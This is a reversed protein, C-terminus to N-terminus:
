LCVDVYVDDITEQEIGIYRLTERQSAHNLIRMLTPLDAAGSKYAHYAFTKRLTHTGVVIGRRDLGARSAAAKLIRYAQVRSIPRPRGNPGSRRSPLLPQDAPADAPILEKAARKVAANIKFRKAKGTKGERLTIHSRGRVDGVTLRLIDSIRLATNIGVIFLLLDRGHLVKKMRSIDRRNKIPQVGSM